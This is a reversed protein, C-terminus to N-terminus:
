NAVAVILLRLPLPPLRPCHLAKPQEACRRQSDEYSSQGEGFGTCAFKEAFQDLSQSPALPCAIARQFARMTSELVLITSKKSLGQFRFDTWGFIRRKRNSEILALSEAPCACLRCHVCLHKALQATSGFRDSGAEAGQAQPLRM